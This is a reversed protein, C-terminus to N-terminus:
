QMGIEFSARPKKRFFPCKLKLTETIETITCYTISIIRVDHATRPLAFCAALILGASAKRVTFYITPDLGVIVFHTMALAAFCDLINETRRPSPVVINPIYYDGKRTFEIENRINKEKM